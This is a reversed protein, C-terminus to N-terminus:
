WRSWKFGSGSQKSKRKKKSVSSPTTFPSLLIDSESDDWRGPNNILSEPINDKKLAQVFDHIGRPDRKSKPRVLDDILDIINSNALTEGDIIIENRQNWSINPSKEIHDVLSQAKKKYPRPIPTLQLDTANSSTTKSPVDIIPISTPRAYQNKTSMYKSLVQSYASAKTEDDLNAQNLITTMEGDLRSLKSFLPSPLNSQPMLLMRKM